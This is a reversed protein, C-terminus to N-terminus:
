GKKHNSKKITADLATKSDHCHRHLLQLNDMTHMGGNLLPIIHDVEMIDNWYFRRKCWLCIGKQKTLLIQSRTSITPKVSLRKSWYRENGSYPSENGQIKVIKSSPTTFEYHSLLVPIARWQHDFIEM